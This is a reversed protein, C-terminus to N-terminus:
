KNHLKAHCDECLTILDSDKYEWPMYGKHYVHHHVNLPVGDYLGNGCMQCTWNDRQYIECRRKQWRPDKLLESYSKKSLPKRKQKESAAQSKRMAKKFKEVGKNKKKRKERVVIQNEINFSKRSALYADLSRAKTGQKTRWGAQECEIFLQIPDVAVNHKQCFDRVLEITPQGIEKGRYKM